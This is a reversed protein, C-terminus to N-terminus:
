VLIDLRRGLTDGAALLRLDLGSKRYSIVTDPDQPHESHSRQAASDQRSDTSRRANEADNLSSGAYVRLAAQQQAQRPSRDATTLALSLV